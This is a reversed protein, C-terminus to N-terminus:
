LFQYEKCCLCLRRRGSCGDGDNGLQTHARDPTRGSVIFLESVVIPAILAEGSLTRRLRPGRGSELSELSRRPAPSRGAEEGCMKGSEKIKFRGSKNYIEEGSLLPFGSSVAVLM